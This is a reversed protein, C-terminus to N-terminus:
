FTKLIKWIKGSVSDSIFLENAISILLGSPRTKAEKTFVILTEYDIFNFDDDIKFLDVSLRDCSEDCKLPKPKGNWAVYFINNSVILDNPGNHNNFIAIPKDILSNCHGEEKGDGGYEPMLKRRGSDSDWYCYPFGFNTNKEIKVLEDSALKDGDKKSYFEPYLDYLSDRGQTIGYLINDKVVLSNLHRLGTSYLEGMDLTQNIKNSDFKWVSSNLKLRTCPMEGKFGTKRDNNISQCANTPSIIHLYLDNNDVIFIPSDDKEASQLGRVILDPEYRNSVLGSTKDIDFRYVTNPGGIYLNDGRIQICTGIFNCFEDVIELEDNDKSKLVIITNGNVNKELLRVYILNNYMTLHQAGKGVGPHVLKVNYGEKVKFKIESFYEKHIFLLTYLISLCLIVIFTIFLTM